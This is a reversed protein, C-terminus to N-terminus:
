EEPHSHARKLKRSPWQPFDLGLKSVNWIQQTKWTERSGDKRKVTIFSEGWVHNGELQGGVVDDVGIKHCLKMVFAEYQSAAAEVANALYTAMRDECMVYYQPDSPRYSVPKTKDRRTLRHFLDYRMKARLYDHKNMKLSSPYPACKNINGGAAELDNKVREMTNLTRLSASNMADLKLPQVLQEIINM